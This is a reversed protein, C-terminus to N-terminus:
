SVRRTMPMRAKYVRERTVCQAMIMREKEREDPM